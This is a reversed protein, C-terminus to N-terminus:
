PKVTILNRSPTWIFSSTMQIQSIQLPHQLSPFGKDPTFAMLVSPLPPPLSTRPPLLLPTHTACTPHRAILLTIVAIMYSFLFDKIKSEKPEKQGVVVCSGRSELFFELSLSICVRPFLSGFPPVDFLTFHLNIHRVQYKIGGLQYCGKM